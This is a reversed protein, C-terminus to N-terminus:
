GLKTSDDPPLLSQKYVDDESVLLCEIDNLVSEIELDLAAPVVPRRVYTLDDEPQDTFWETGDAEIVRYTEDVNEALSVRCPAKNPPIGEIVEGANQLALTNESGIERYIQDSECDSWWGKTGDTPMEDRYTAVYEGDTTLLRDTDTYFGTRNATKKRVLPPDTLIRKLTDLKNTEGEDPTRVAYVLKANEAQAPPIRKIISAPKTITMTEVEIWVPRDTGFIEGGTDCLIDPGDNGSPYLSPNLDSLCEIVANTAYRHDPSGRNSTYEADNQQSNKM